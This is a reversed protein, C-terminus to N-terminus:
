KSYGGPFAPALAIGACDELGGGTEVIAAENEIRDLLKRVFDSAEQMDSDIQRNQGVGIGAVVYLVDDARSGAEVRGDIGLAGDPVLAQQQGLDRSQM